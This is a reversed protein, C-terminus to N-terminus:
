VSSSVPTINPQQVYSSVYSYNFKLVYKITETLGELLRVDRKTGEECADAIAAAVQREIWAYAGVEQADLTVHKSLADATHPAALRAHIYCVLHHRRPLGFSLKTPFM